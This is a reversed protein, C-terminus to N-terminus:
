RLTRYQRGSIKMQRAVDDPRLDAHSALSIGSWADLWERVTEERVKFQEAVTAIANGDAIRGEEAWRLYRIAAEIAKRALPNEPLSAMPAATERGGGRLQKLCDELGGEVIMAPVALMLNLPLGFNEIAMGQKDHASEPDGGEIRHVRAKHTEMREVYGCVKKDLALAYGLEFCTGSDPEVGRFPNLNAVVIQAKRILDLNAQFIRPAETEGHDVPILAEYGYRRCTERATEAWELVDPRFVDPGALYIKM